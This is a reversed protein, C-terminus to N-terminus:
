FQGNRLYIAVSGHAKLPDAKECLKANCRSSRKKTRRWEECMLNRLEQALINPLHALLHKFITANQSFTNEVEKEFLCM